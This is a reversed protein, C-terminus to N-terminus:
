FSSALLRHLVDVALADPVVRELFLCLIHFLRVVEASVEAFVEGLTETEVFFDSEREELADPIEVVSVDGVDETGQRTDLDEIEKVFVHVSIKNFVFEDHNEGNELGFETMKVLFEDALSEVFLGSFRLNLNLLDGIQDKLKLVKQPFSEIRM